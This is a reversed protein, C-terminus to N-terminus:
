SPPNQHVLSGLVWLIRDASSILGIGLVWGLFTVVLILSVTTTELLFPPRRRFHTLVPQTTIKFKFKELATALAEKVQAETAVAADHSEPLKLLKAAQGSHSPELQLKTVADKKIAAEAADKGTQFGETQEERTQDVKLKPPKTLKKTYDSVQKNSKEISADLKKVTKEEREWAELAAKM